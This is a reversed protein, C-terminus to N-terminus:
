KAVGKFLKIGVAAYVVTEMMRGMDIGVEEIARIGAVTGQMLEPHGLTAFLGGLFLGLLPLTVIVTVYEDKWGDGGQRLSMAEWEADTLQMKQDKDLRALAVKSELSAKAAKREERKSFYGGVATVLGSIIPLM